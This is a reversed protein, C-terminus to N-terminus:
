VSCADDGNSKEPTLFSRTEKQCRDRRELFAVEKAVEDPNGMRGMPITSLFTTKVQESLEASMPTEIPGPSIANIRIKRYKLDVTWSRAFSRIAAKSANYLSM